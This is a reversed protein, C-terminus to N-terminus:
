PDDFCAFGILIPVVRFMSFHKALPGSRGDHGLAGLGSVLCVNLDLRTDLAANNKSFGGFNRALVEISALM